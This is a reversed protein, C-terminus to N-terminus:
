CRYITGPRVDELVFFLLLAYYIMGRAERASRHLDSELRRTRADFNFQAEVMARGRPAMRKWPLPDSLFDM